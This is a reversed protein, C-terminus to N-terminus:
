TPVKCHKEGTTVDTTSLVRTDLRMRTYKQIKAKFTMFTRHTNPKYERDQTPTPAPTRLYPTPTQIPDLETPEM